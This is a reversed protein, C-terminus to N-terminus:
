IRGASFDAIVNPVSADFGVVDLMLPDKPDAISFETAETAAVVLRANIGTKQRYAELAQSPHIGGAWTENDTYIVFTDYERNKKTAWTMPLACDTRGFPLGEVSKIIDDLRRKKSFDLPIFNTSFGMVDVNPETAIQIMSMAATAERPSLVSPTESRYDWYRGGMSGSVDLGILTRKEAPVVNKFADYFAGDLADVIATSPVWNTSRSSGGKYVKLALLVKIPHIRSKHIRDVDALRNRVVDEMGVEIASMRGLQRIMAGLPLSDAELLARWLKPENHFQTPVAEWPLNFNQIVEVLGDITTSAQALEFGQIVGPVALDTKGHTIWDLVGAIEADETKPHSVRLADRHTWNHRARYKIAQYALSEASRDTYWSGLAKRTGRGFGGGLNKRFNIFEFLHTGIRVVKGLNEYAYARTVDNGFVTAAAMAFVAPSNSPARGADSVAVIENVAEVGNNAVVSRVLEVNKDAHAQQGVYYTGGDVGLILFRRFREMDGVKFTYGGANNKVQDRGLLPQSQSTKRANIQNLADSM